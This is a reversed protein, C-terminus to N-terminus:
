DADQFDSVPQGVKSETVKIVTSAPRALPVVGVDSDFSFIEATHAGTDDPMWEFAYQITQASALSYHVSDIHTVFGGSDTIKIFLTTNQAHALANSIRGSVVIVSNQITTANTIDDNNNDSHNYVHAHHPNGVFIMSTSPGVLDGTPMGQMSMIADQTDEAADKQITHQVGGRPLNTKSHPMGPDAEPAPESPRLQQSDHSKRVDNGDTNTSTDYKSPADFVTSDQAISEARPANISKSADHARLATALAGDPGYLIGAKFKTATEYVLLSVPIVQGPSGGSINKLTDKLLSAIRAGTVADREFETFTMAGNGCPVDYVVSFLFGCAEPHVPLSYTMPSAYWDYYPNTTTSQMSVDYGVFSHGLGLIHGTEHLILNTLGINKDWVDREDAVGIACCPSANDGPMGAAMGLLGNDFLVITDTSDIVVLIPISWTNDTSHETQRAQGWEALYPTINKTSLLAYQRDNGLIDKIIMNKSQEFQRKFDYSLGRLDRREISVEIEWKSNPYLYQMEELIVDENLFHDITAPTVTVSSGPKLYLLIDLKYNQYNQIPYLLSPTIIHRAASSVHSKVIDSRCVDTGSSDSSRVGSGTGTEASHTCTYMNHMSPDVVYRNKRHDYDVWPVAWVDYFFLRSRDSEGRSDSAKSGGYGMLGIHDIRKGSAADANSTYYNQLYGSQDHPIDVFVLNAFVGATLSPDEGIVKSLIYEEVAVADVQRYPVDTLGHEQAWLAQWIPTDLIGTGYLDSEDSHDAMVDLLGQVHGPKSVFEYNYHYRTGVNKETIPYIPDHYKSLVDTMEKIEKSTWADKGIIIVNVRVPQELSINARVTPTKQVTSEHVHSGKSGDRIDGDQKKPYFSELTYDVGDVPSDNYSLGEAIWLTHEDVVAVMRVRAERDNITSEYTIIGSRMGNSTVSVEVSKLSYNWCQMGINFRCRSEADKALVDLITNNIATIFASEAKYVQALPYENDQYASVVVRADRYESVFMAVYRHAPHPDHLIPPTQFEWDDPHTIYIEGDEYADAHLLGGGTWALTCSLLAAAAVWLLHSACPEPKSSQLFVM